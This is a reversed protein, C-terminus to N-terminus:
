GPQTAQFEVFRSHICITVIVIAMWADILIRVSRPQACLSLSLSLSQHLPVRVPSAKFEDFKLSYLSPQLQDFTHARKCGIKKCHEGFHCMENDPTPHIESIPRAIKTIYNRLESHMPLDKLQHLLATPYLWQIITDASLRQARATFEPEVVWLEDASM